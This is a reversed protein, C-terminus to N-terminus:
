LNSGIKTESIVFCRFIVKDIYRGHYNCEFIDRANRVFSGDVHAPIIEETIPEFIKQMVHSNYKFKIRAETPPTNPKHKPAEIILRM